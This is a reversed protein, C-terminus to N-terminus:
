KIDMSSAGVLNEFYQLILFFFCCCSKYTYCLVYVYIYEIYYIYVQILAIVLLSHIVKLDQLAVVYLWM